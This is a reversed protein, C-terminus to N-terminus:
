AGVQVAAEYLTWGDQSNCTTGEAQCSCWSTGAQGRRRESARGTQICQGQATAPHNELHLRPWMALNSFQVDLLHFGGDGFM